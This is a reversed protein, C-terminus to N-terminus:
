PMHLPPALARRAHWLRIGFHRIPPIRPIPTPPPPRPLKELASARGAPLRQDAFDCGLAGRCGGGGRGAWLEM